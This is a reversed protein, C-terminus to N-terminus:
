SLLDEVEPLINVGCADNFSELAEARPPLKYVYTRNEGARKRVKDARACVRKVEKGFAASSLERGRKRNQACWERYADRMEDAEVEIGEDYPWPQEFATGVSGRYLLEAFWAEVGELGAERVDDLAATHPFERPDFRNLDVSQLFGLFHHNGDGNIERYLADFYARDGRYRDSVDLIAYRREDRGKAPAAWDENTTAIVRACSRVTEKGLFKVEMTLSPATIVRQLAKAAARDGSWLAEEIHVLLARATAENFRGTLDGEGRIADTHKDGVLRQVAAALTDKGTGKLGRLVLAVGPKEWPRQVLHALWGIVYEYLAPDDDCIVERIHRLILPCGAEGQDGAPVGWGRWLNLVGPPPTRGPLFDVREFSRRDPHRRWWKALHWKPEPSPVNELQEDFTKPTMFDGWREDFVASTNGLRGIAYRANVTEVLRAPADGDDDADDREDDAADDGGVEDDFLAVIETIKRTAREGARDLVRDRERDDKEAWWGRAVVLDEGTAHPGPEIYDFLVAEVAERDLGYAFLDMAARYAVGSGSDDRSGRGGTEAEMWAPGIEGLLRRLTDLDVTRIAGDGPPEGLLAPTVQQDTVTVFGSVKMAIERHKRPSGFKTGGQSWDNILGEGRLAEIHEERLHFVVRLGTGSPSAETYSDFLLAIREAVSELDGTEPDRMGDLDLAARILGAPAHARGLLIGVGAERGEDGWSAVLAEASARPAFTSPRNTRAKGGTKPNIPGRRNYPGGDKARIPGGRNDCHGEPCGRAAWVPLRALQDLGFSSEGEQQRKIEATSHTTDTM